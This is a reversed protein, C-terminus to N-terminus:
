DNNVLAHDYRERVKTDNRRFEATSLWLENRIKRIRPSFNENVFERTGKHKSVNRLVRIKERFDILKFIVPRIKCEAPVGLRHCYEIADCTAFLKTTM